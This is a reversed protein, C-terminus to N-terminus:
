MWFNSLDIPTASASGNEAKSFWMSFKVLLSVKARHTKLKEIEHRDTILDEPLGLDKRMGITVHQTMTDDSTRAMANGTYENTYEYSKTNLQLGEQSVRYDTNEM